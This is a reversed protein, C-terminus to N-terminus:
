FAINVVIEDIEGSDFNYNTIRDVFRGQVITESVVIHLAQFGYILKYLYVVRIGM